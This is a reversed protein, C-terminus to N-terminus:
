LGHWTSNTSCQCHGKGDGQRPPSLCPGQNDGATRRGARRRRGTNDAIKRLESLLMFGERDTPIFLDMVIYAYKRKKYKNVADYIEQSCDIDIFM